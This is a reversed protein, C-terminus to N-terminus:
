VANIQYRRSSSGGRLLVREDRAIQRSSADGLVDLLLGIDQGTESHPMAEGGQPIVDIVTTTIGGMNSFCKTFALPIGPVPSVFRLFCPSCSSIRM